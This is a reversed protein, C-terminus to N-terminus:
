LKKIVLDDLKTEEFRWDDMETEDLFFQTDCTLTQFLSFYKVYIETVYSLTLGGSVAM